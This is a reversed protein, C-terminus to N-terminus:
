SGRRHSHHRPRRQLPAEKIATADLGVLHYLEDITGHEVFYDPLGLSRVQPHLDHQALFELVADAMGGRVVGDEITVIRQFHTGVHLLIEEDIPKLFRMDYHAVRHGEAHLESVVSAVTNGIPGLTLVATGSGETLCRGRGILLEEFPTEWHSMVGRSRPYRIVFPFANHPLQATYMLNRLEQENLPSAITLNPIPRLAALDFAGHHTPGDEGVLGARDLCLVVHLRQIAVDHIIHDFARQSFTSYINCFPILGDKAMGASFTVAHGEAIGVDFSREPMEKMLRSMGCGSAMAPTVGVILPNKRALEVLTQGFVDQYKPPLGNTNPQLRKGTQPDYKGPAHFLVPDEEAPLFGKGKVTHIHLMKPGQMEKIQRLTHVLDIVNHGDYPGFYRISLGEFLNQSNNMLSFEM